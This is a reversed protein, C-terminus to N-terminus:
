EAYRHAIGRGIGQAAGTIIAVKGDLRMDDGRTTSVAGRRVTGSSAGTAAAELREGAGVAITPRAAVVAATSSRVAQAAAVRMPTSRRWSSNFASSASGPSIARWM